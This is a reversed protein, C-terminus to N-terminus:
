WHKMALRMANKYTLVENTGGRMSTKPSSLKLTATFANYSSRAVSTHSLSLSLSLSLPLSMKVCQLTMPKLNEWTYDSRDVYAFRPGANITRTGTKRKGGNGAENPVYTVMM